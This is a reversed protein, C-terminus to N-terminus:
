PIPHFHPTNHSSHTSSNHLHTPPCVPYGFSDCMDVFNSPFFGKRAEFEGYWWGTPDMQIVSVLMGISPLALFDGGRPPPTFVSHVVVRIREESGIASFMGDDVADSVDEM